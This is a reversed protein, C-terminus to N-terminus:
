HIYPLYLLSPLFAISVEGRMQRDKVKKVADRNIKSMKARNQKKVKNNFWARLATYAQPVSITFKKVMHLVTNTLTSPKIRAWTDIHSENRFFTSYIRNWYKSVNNQLDMHQETFQGSVAHNSNSMRTRWVNCLPVCDDGDMLRMVEAAFLRPDATRPLNNYRIPGDTGDETVERALMGDQPHPAFLMFLPLHIYM